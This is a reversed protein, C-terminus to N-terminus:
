ASDTTTGRTASPVLLTSTNTVSVHTIPPKVSYLCAFTLELSVLEILYRSCNCKARNRMGGGGRNKRQRLYNGVPLVGAAEMLGTHRLHTVMLFDPFILQQPRPPEQNLFHPDAAAPLLFISCVHYSPIRAQLGRPCKVVVM